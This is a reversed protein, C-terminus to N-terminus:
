ILSVGYSLGAWFVALAVLSLGLAPGRGDHKHIKYWRAFRMARFQNARRIHPIIDESTLDM